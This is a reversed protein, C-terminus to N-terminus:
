QKDKPACDEGQGRRTFIYLDDFEFRSEPPKDYRQIQWFMGVLIAVAVGICAAMIAVWWVYEAHGMFFKITAM